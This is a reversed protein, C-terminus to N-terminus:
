APVVQTGAHGDVIGEIQALGGIAARAGTREVFRCAAEVKPGMSGAAFDMARLEDPSVKELQRQDPTGWGTYVGDVDTVMVFVDADVGGASRGSGL